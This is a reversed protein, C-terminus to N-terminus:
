PGTHAEAPAHRSRLTEAVTSGIRAADECRRDPWGPRGPGFARGLWESADRLGDHALAMYGPQERLWARDARLAARHMALQAVERPVPKGPEPDGWDAHVRDLAGLVADLARAGLANSTPRWDDAPEGTMPPRARRADPGAADRAFWGNDGASWEMLSGDELVLGHTPDTADRWAVDPLARLSVVERTSMAGDRGKTVVTDGVGYGGGCAPWRSLDDVPERAEDVVVCGPNRAHFASVKDAWAKGGPAGVMWEDRLCTEGTAMRTLRQGGRDLMIARQRDIRGMGMAGGAPGDPVAHYHMAPVSPPLASPGGAAPITVM